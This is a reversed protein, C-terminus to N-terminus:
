SGVEWALPLSTLTMMAGGGRETLEEPGAIRFDPIVRLWEQVALQLERRALHMGLCRHPGNAFGMHNNRERDVVFEGAREYARPDRNAGSVLAYVMDGKKLQVGHFEADRTVKRGDGFVIPYYRLAEEVASPILEPEAILRRRHEPHTALHWFIYGLTARTTDLGALVLVTLMDLLEADTLPRGDFTSHMLHSALDGERPEADRRREALATVWYERIGELAKAMAELGAPDGSFGSFFDEVWPVFLDADAPDIGAVSLFAETPFRLGFETVFDCAGAPAVDEVLRRCLARMAPEAADIARPSFWPNVIRRYKIHDPADIQTPVFRYIPDPQWPTISESSFLEPTKYIDRVADHRTFVWYGQAFTNFYVPSSERLEDGLEWHRGAAQQPAFDRHMVPCGGLDREVAADPTTMDTM